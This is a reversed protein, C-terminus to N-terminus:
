ASAPPARLSIVARPPGHPPPHRDHRFLPRGREPGPELNWVSVLETAAPAFAHQPVDVATQALWVIPGDDDSFARDSHTHAQLHRHLSTAHHGDAEHLHAPPVTSSWVMAVGILVNLVACLRRSVLPNDDVSVRLAIRAGCTTVLIPLSRDLFECSAHV